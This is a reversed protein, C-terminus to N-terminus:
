YITWGGDVILNHGTVMNAMPSAMFVAAYAIDKPLAYKMLPIKRYSKRKFSPEYLLKYNDKTEVFTPSICNVRVNFKSWELALAKTMQIVGAKSSCYHVRDFNAVVGHQSAISIINGKRETIFAEAVSKTIFFTGKLNVDVVDDWQKEGIEFPSLYSNTGANNILVDVSLNSNIIDETMKEISSIDKIDVFFMNVKSNYSVKIDDVLQQLREHCVSLDCLILDANLEAFMRATESGIGSSAGTILITKNSFDLINIM